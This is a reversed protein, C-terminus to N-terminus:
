GDRRRGVVAEVMGRGVVGYRHRLHRDASGDTWDRGDGVLKMARDPHGGLVPQPQGGHPGPAPDVLEARRRLVRPPKSPHHQGGDIRPIHNDAIPVTM